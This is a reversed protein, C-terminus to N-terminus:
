LLLLLTISCCRCCCCYFLFFKWWSTCYYFIKVEQKEWGGFSFGFFFFSVATKKRDVRTSGGEGIERCKKWSFFFSSSVRRRRRTRRRRERRERREWFCWILDSSQWSLAVLLYNIKVRCMKEPVCVCFFFYTSYTTCIGVPSRFKCAYCTISCTM